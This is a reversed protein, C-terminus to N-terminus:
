KLKTTEKHMTKEKCYKCFKKTELKEPHKQKNKDLIYNNNNCQTCKLMLKQRM